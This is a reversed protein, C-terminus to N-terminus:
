KLFLNIDFSFIVLGVFISSMMIGVNWLNINSKKITQYVIILAFILITTSIWPLWWAGGVLGFLLTLGGLQITEFSYYSLGILFLLILTAQLLNLPNVDKKRFFSIVEKFCVILSFLLPFALLFIWLVNKQLGVKQILKNIKNNKYLATPFNIPTANLEMLCADNPKQNPQEIFAKFIEKGCTTGYVGHGIKEFEFYYSNSYRSHMIKSHEVSTIPDYTGAMVLAPIDSTVPITDRANFSVMTDSVYFDLYFDSIMFEPYQETTQKYEKKAIDQRAKWDYVYNVISTGNHKKVLTEFIGYLADMFTLDNAIFAELLLPLDKYYDSKYLFQQLIGNIEQSNFVFEEAGKYVLPKTQTKLLFSYLREKLNPHAKNCEPDNACDDLINDLVQKYLQTTKGNQFAAMPVNSDSYISRIKVSSNEAARIFGQVGMTGNSIGFLNVEGYGLQEILKVADITKVETSYRKYDIGKQKLEDLCDYCQKNVIETFSKYDHNEKLVDWHKAGLDPCLNPLSYGSGRYDFMIIDRNKVPM